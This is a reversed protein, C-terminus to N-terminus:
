ICFAHLCNWKTSFYAYAFGCGFTAPPIPPNRNSKKKTKSNWKCMVNLKEVKTTTAPQLDIFEHVYGAIRNVTLDTWQSAAKRDLENRMWLAGCGDFSLWFWFWVSGFQVSGLWAIEIRMPSFFFVVLLYIFTGEFLKRFKYARKPNPLLPLSLSGYRGAQELEDEAVFICIDIVPRSKITDCHLSYASCYLSLPLPPSSSSVPREILSLWSCSSSSSMVRVCM